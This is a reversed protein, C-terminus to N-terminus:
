VNLHIATQVFRIKRISNVVDEALLRNLCLCAAAQKGDADSGVHMHIINIRQAALLDAIKAIVGPRNYHATLLTPGTLPAELEIGDYNTLRPQAGGLLTGSLTFHRKGCRMDIKLLTAFDRATHDCVVAVKLGQREALTIANVQNVPISFMSELLGALVEALIINESIDAALGLMTLELEDPRKNCMAHGLKGLGKALPLYPQAVALRDAPIRPLNVANIAEGTTFFKGLQTAIAVGTAQQAETTSAGLHPTFVINATSRFPHDAPLPETTFVDVAAGAITGANLAAVLAKEDVIGGRACQILYASAKMRKLEKKGLLGMNEKGGPTYITVYDSRKLLQVLTVPEYGDEAIVKTAVFPDHVLVKLALGRCRSAVIRGIGGYGIIGITKGAIEVGTLKGREWKGARVSADAVTLKRSLSFMHALALEATTAANADPTNLVVIGRDTAATVDINDVGIGARGIVKISTNPGLVSARIKTASRVVVADVKTLWKALQSDKLDHELVPQLGNAELCDIGEASLQDAVLVLPLTKKM